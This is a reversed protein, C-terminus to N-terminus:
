DVNTNLIKKLCTWVLVKANLKSFFQSARFNEQAVPLREAKYEKFVRETEEKTPSGPLINIWNALCLADHMASTAGVGGSPSLKEELTVKSILGSPTLDILSGLTTPRGGNPIPFHRVESCMAEAAEPGWESNRFNDHEKSTFKDLHQVVMWCITKDKTTFTVWTFPTGAGNMNNFICTPEKLEPFEEPDLPHTQGVLSITNYPLPVDDSSPLRGEKKLMKYLGQRVGSYAGDAGVLIDGEYMTNDSCEIRICDEREKLTLVRKSMHVKEQPIRRSLIDYLAPRAIIYGPDGGMDPTPSFDMVHELNLNEDHMMVKNYVMGAATFEDYIGLQRFLPATNATLSIASGLPKVVAAREFIEYPVGARELLLGLTLGGLGAGVILVRPRKEFTTAKQEAPM